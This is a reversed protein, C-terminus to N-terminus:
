INVLNPLEKLVRALFDTQVRALKESDSGLDVDVSIVEKIKAVKGYGNELFGLDLLACKYRVKKGEVYQVIDIQQRKTPRFSILAWKDRDRFRQYPSDSGWRAVMTIELVAKEVILRLIPYASVYFQYKFDVASSEWFELGKEKDKEPSITVIIDKAFLNPLEESLVRLNAKLTKKWDGTVEFRDQPFFIACLDTFSFWRAGKLSAYTGTVTISVPPYTNGQTVVKSFSVSQEIDVKIRRWVDKSEQGINHKNSVEISKINLDPSSCFDSMVISDFEEILEHDINQDLQRKTLIKEM